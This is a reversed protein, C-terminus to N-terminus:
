RHASRSAAGRERPRTRAGNDISGEEFRPPTQRGSLRNAASRVAAALEPIRAASVRSSPGGISIAAVVRGRHDRVPAGVAVFGPEIEERNVAFGQRWVRALERELRAASTITRRTFRALPALARTSALDNSEFRAAALLVKGTSTAHAPFRMGVEPNIGIIHAGQVEDLILVDSGVLIELTATEGTGASLAELERRSSVRVHNARLARAGLAILEPGLQFAGGPADQVVMGEDELARLLRFATTKNLRLEDALESLRWQSRKAGFAKLIAIARFVSQAGSARRQATTTFRPKM